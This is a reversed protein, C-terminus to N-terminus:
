KVVELETEKKDENKNKKSFRDLLMKFVYFLVFKNLIFYSIIMFTLQEDIYLEFEM